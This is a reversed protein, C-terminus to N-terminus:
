QLGDEPLARAKDSKSLLDKVVQKTLKIVFFAYDSDTELFIMTYDAEFFTEELQVKGYKAEILTVAEEPSMDVPPPLPYDFDEKSVGLKGMVYVQPPTDNPVEDKDFYVNESM